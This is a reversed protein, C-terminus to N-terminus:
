EDPDSLARMLLDRDIGSVRGLKARELLVDRAVIWPNQDTRQLRQATGWWDIGQLSLRFAMYNALSDAPVNESAAVDPVVAKLREVSGSSGSRSKTANVCIKALEESRGNLVVDAAFQTADWEEDSERREPSTEAAEIVARQKKEPEQGAHFLEHLLDHLWRAVSMTQQKLVIVNRGEMRWTAGHFAGQDHLPLVPVGLDWVYNLVNRFTIAGYHRIVASHVERFDTPIPKQVLEATADLLRLALFHSYFTYAGLRKQEARASVKFRAAGLVGQEVFLQDNGIIAEPTWGYVHATSATAHFVVDPDQAGSASRAKEAVARPLFNSLVFDKELGMEKLRKFVDFSGSRAAPLFVDERVKLGLAGAVELLRSVSAGSYDSAEYRQVQQEKLKLRDGLDKQSLGAAIRAKVLSRPLDELAVTELLLHKGSRLDDYEKLEARLDALQSRVGDIEAQKIAPHVDDTQTQAELEGVLREFKEAEAKTIRYQRENKIM